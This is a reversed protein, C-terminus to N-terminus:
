QSTLQNDVCRREGRNATLLMINTNIRQKKPTQLRPGTAEAATRSGLGDVIHGADRERLAYGVARFWTQWEDVAMLWPPSRRERPSVTARASTSFSSASTFLWYFTFRNHSLLQLPHLFFHQQPLTYTHSSPTSHNLLFRMLAKLTTTNRFPQRLSPSDPFLLIFASDTTVGQKKTGVSSISVDPSNSIVFKVLM